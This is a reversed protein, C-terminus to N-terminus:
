VLPPKGVAAERPHAVVAHGERSRSEGVSSTARAYARYVDDFIRDWSRTLAHARAARGMAQRRVRDGALVITAVILDQRSNALVASRADAAIFKPGGRAMAVVPVGSAMAEQVVNGVTETESPFVFLDMDAYACALADGRLVGTFTASPMRQTLWERESGDGVITFRVDHCGADALSREVDVLVRVSKEPSLRGVYGINLASDTRTRKAPTFLEADVGRSMLFVPKGTRRALLELWDDNPALLVRPIQYFLLAARLAWHEVHYRVRMRRSESAGAVVKLMRRAAYEHLNTHWSGVMPISLRHGLYAGIQGVDSPGTFHLVDPKFDLLARRVAGTHRWLALDFQLDHELAFSTARGRKLNLHSVVGDEVLRTEPGAHVCLMPHAHRGAYAALAQATRAVGNAEHYSDAFLAVRM